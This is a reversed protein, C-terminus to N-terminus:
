ASNFHGCTGGLIHGCSAADGSRCVPVGNVHLVSSGSAMSAVCHPIIAPCPPHPAVPSGVVLVPNGSCHLTSQAATVVGGASDGNQGVTPM